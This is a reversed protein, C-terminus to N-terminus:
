GGALATAADRKRLAETFRLFSELSQYCFCLPGRPVGSRARKTARYGREIRDTKEPNVANEPIGSLVTFNLFRRAPMAVNQHTVGILCAPTLRNAVLFDSLEIAGQKFTGLVARPTGEVSEPVHVELYADGDV